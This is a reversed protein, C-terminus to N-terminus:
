GMRQCFCIFINSIGKTKYYVSDPKSACGTTSGYITDGGKCLKEPKVFFFSRCSPTIDCLGACETASRARGLDTGDCLVNIISGDKEFTEAIIWQIYSFFLYWNILM